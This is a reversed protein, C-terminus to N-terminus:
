LNFTLKLDRLLQINDEFYALFVLLGIIILITWGLRRTFM